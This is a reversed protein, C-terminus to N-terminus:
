QPRTNVEFIWLKGNRDIGFDFGLQGIGPFRSELIGTAIHTLVRMERKKSAVKGPSLSRRIGESGSLLEGGRCLNTVFLGPKALRGVIARIRWVGDEKVYKVRYDIPRGGITALRIGKQILYRRGKRKRDLSRFMAEFNDFRKTMSYYTYTYGAAGERTVKIVGHGGAGKVPKVVVMGHSSLMSRLNDSTFRRTPPIHPAIRGHSLLAETKAWKSALQRGLEDGM